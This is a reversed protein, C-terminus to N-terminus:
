LSVIDIKIVPSSVPVVTESPTTSPETSKRPLGDTLDDEPPHLDKPKMMTLKVKKKKWVKEFKGALNELFYFIGVPASASSLNAKM